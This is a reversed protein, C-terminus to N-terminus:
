ARTRIVGLIKAQNTPLSTWVRWEIQDCGTIGARLPGCAKESGCVVIFRVCKLHKVMDKQAATQLHEPIVVKHDHASQIWANQENCHSRLRQGIHDGSEYMASRPYIYTATTVALCVGQRYEPTVFTSDGHACTGDPQQREFVKRPDPDPDLCLTVEKPPSMVQGGVWFVEDSGVVSPMRMGFAASLWPEGWWVSDPTEPAFENVFTGPKTCKEPWKTDGRLKSVCTRFVVTDGEALPGGLYIAVTDGRASIPLDPQWYAEAPLPKDRRGVTRWGTGNGDGGTWFTPVYLTDAAMNLWASDSVSGGYSASYDADAPQCAALWLIALGTLAIGLITLGTSRRM